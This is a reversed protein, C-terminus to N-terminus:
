GKKTLARARNVHAFARFFARKKKDANIGTKEPTKKRKEVPISESSDERSAVRHHKGEGGWTEVQKPSKRRMLIKEEQLIEQADRRKGKIVNASTKKKEDRGHIGRNKGQLRNGGRSDAVKGRFL